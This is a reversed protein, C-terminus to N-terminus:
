EDDQFIPQIYNAIETALTQHAPADFHIGDSDQGFLESFESANYYYYGNKQALRYFYEPLQRSKMEAGQFRTQMFPTLRAKEILAPAIIVIAPVSGQFGTQNNEVMRCLSELRNTIHKPTTNFKPKLDNSGLMFIVMSLPRHSYLCPYFYSLGNRGPLEPDDLGTTRGPLAENIVTFGDGLYQNLLGPWRIHSPFREAYGTYPNMTKSIYGWSNSDGYILINIKHERM